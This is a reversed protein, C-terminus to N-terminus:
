CNATMLHVRDGARVGLRALLDATAAARRVQEAYTVETITGDDREFVLFPATPTAAARQDLLTNADAPHEDGNLLM